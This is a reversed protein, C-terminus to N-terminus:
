AKPMFNKALNLVVQSVKALIKISLV